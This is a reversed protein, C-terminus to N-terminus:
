QSLVFATALTAWASLLGSASAEEIDEDAVEDTEEEPYDFDDGEWTGASFEVLNIIEAGFKVDVEYTEGTDPDEEEKTIDSDFEYTSTATSIEAYSFRDEENDYM